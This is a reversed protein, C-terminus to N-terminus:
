QISVEIDVEIPVNVNDPSSVASPRFTEAPFTVFDLEGETQQSSQGSVPDAVKKPKIVPKKPSNSRTSSPRVSPSPAAATTQLQNSNAPAQSNSGSSNTSGLTFQMSNARKGIIQRGLAGLAGPNRQVTGQQFDVTQVFKPNILAAVLPSVASCRNWLLLNKKPALEVAFRFSKFKQNLASNDPLFDFDVSNWQFRPVFGLILSSNAVFSSPSLSSITSSEGKLRCNKHLKVTNVEQQLSLDFKGGLEFSTLHNFSAVL